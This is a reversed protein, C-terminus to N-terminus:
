KAADRLFGVTRNDPTFYRQAVRAVDDVTVRTTQEVVVDLYRFGRLREPITESAAITEYQGLLIAQQLAEENNLVFDAEVQRKAKEVEAQAIEGRRLKDIEDYIAQEVNEILFGPKIEAQFYFLPPDIHDHYAADALSVSQDGEVLRLYLRSSKGTALIAEAVHLAHSDEHGVPPVHYGILLREVPTEKRVVVRKEGRQSPEIIALPSEAPGEPISGFLENIRSLARETEFDGVLVITANRPHYWKDYYGKMDAASAAELDELWGVTPWHYPHQRFATAWVENELAEWPGDL